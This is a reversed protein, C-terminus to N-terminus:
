LGKKIVNCVAHVQELGVATGTPLVIVRAAIRDTDPLYAESKYAEMRHCGPWFYRRAFVNEAHLAQLTEDRGSDVEIVIYQFNCRESEDYQIVSVGSLDSLGERYAHYNRKNTAVFEPLSELNTLGMAASAEPMKGNTGVSVVNDAGAFGFNKTLRVKNALGDDNTAVIGGEFTNLFKTAHFSFVEALGFRGIMDGRYSCGFAHAADFILTLNRRSAIESLADVNCPRGWLHVGVIGTTQPTILREVQNPDINHTEPDIDCFVPTFGQWKIAHATAIFTFSPVIIEGSMGSARIAMELAVTANCTAICHKVGLFESVKHEFQQVLSGNNTLWRRDFAEGMLELFRARNGINPCGVYLPKMSLAMGQAQPPQFSM